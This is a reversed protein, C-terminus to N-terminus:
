ETVESIYAINRLLTTVFIQGCVICEGEVSECGPPFTFLSDVDAFGCHPCIPVRRM